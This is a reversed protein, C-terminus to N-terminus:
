ILRHTFKKSRGLVLLPGCINCCSSSAKDRDGIKKRPKIKLEVKM